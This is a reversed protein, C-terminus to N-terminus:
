ELFSIIDEKDKRQINPVLCDEAPYGVPLLLYAKENKPRDLLRELFNMPSPTHTLTVLGVQHIASILFGSAIGVSESVYYNKVQQDGDLDYPKKFVIILWPATELFPKHWDTGFAKLDDLWEDSMRGHYNLYEEKEAAERIQKKLTPNSVAVFHWPQKNAGSPASGAIQLLQLILEKPVAEDSFYRVSRRLKMCTLLAESRQLIEAESPKHYLLPIHDKAEM